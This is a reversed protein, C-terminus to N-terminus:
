REHQRPMAALSLLLALMWAGIWIPVVQAKGAEAEHLSRGAPLYGHGPMPVIVLAERVGPPPQWSLRHEGGDAHAFM